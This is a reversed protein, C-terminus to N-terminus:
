SDIKSKLKMRKDYEVELQDIINRNGTTKEYVPIVYLCVFSFININNPHSIYVKSAEIPDDKVSYLYCSSNCGRSEKTWCRSCIDKKAEIVSRGHLMYIQNRIERGSECDINLGLKILTNDLDELTM